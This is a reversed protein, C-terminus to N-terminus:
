SQWASPVSSHQLCESAHAASAPCSCTVHCVHYLHHTKHVQWAGSKTSVLMQVMDMPITVTQIDLSREQSSHVKVHPDYIVKVMVLGTDGHKSLLYIMLMWAAWVIHGSRVHGHSLGTCMAGMDNRQIWQLGRSTVKCALM